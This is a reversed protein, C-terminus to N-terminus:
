SKSQKPWPRSVMKRKPWPRKSKMKPRERRRERNILVRDPHQAGDGRVNTKFRHATETRYILFEPDNAHPKYLQTRSDYERVRLPPNHDLALKDEGLHRCLAKLLLTLLRRNSDGAERDIDLIERPDTVFGQLQRLAVVCRVDLPIHPRPRKM